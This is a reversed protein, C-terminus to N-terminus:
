HGVWLPPQANRPLRQHLLSAHTLPHPQLRILRYIQWGARRECGRAYATPLSAVHLYSLAGKRLSLQYTGSIGPSQLHKPLCCRCWHTSM